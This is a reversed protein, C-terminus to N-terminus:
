GISSRLLSERASSLILVRTALNFLRKHNERGLRPPARGLYINELESSDKRKDLLPYDDCYWESLGDIVDGPQADERLLLQIRNINTQECIELTVLSTVLYL